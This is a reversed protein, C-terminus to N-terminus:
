KFGDGAVTKAIEKQRAAVRADFSAVDAAKSKPESADECWDPRPKIEGGDSIRCPHKRSTMHRFVIDEWAQTGPVVAKQGLPTYFHAPGLTFGAVPCCLLSHAEENHNPCPIDPIDQYQSRLRDQQDSM